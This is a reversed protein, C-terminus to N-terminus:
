KRIISWPPTSRTFSLFMRVMAAASALAHKEMKKEPKREPDLRCTYGTLRSNQDKTPQM